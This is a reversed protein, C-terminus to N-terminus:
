AQAFEIVGDTAAVATGTLHYVMHPACGDPVAHGGDGMAFADPTSPFVRLKRGLTRYQVLSLAGSTLTSPISFSTPGQSGYDGAALPLALWTGAVAATPITLTGTHTPVGSSNTYTITAVVPAGSGLTTTIELAIGVGVGAVAFNADRPPLQAPAIAQAGTTTVSLGSNEWLRDVWFAFDINATAALAAFDAFNLFCSKSAVAAPAAVTGSRGNAVAAGNVGASPASAAGPTGAVYMPNHFGGAAQGTFANKSWNLVPLRGAILADVFGISSM